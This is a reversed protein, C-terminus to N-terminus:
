SSCLVHVYSNLVVVTFMILLKLVLNHFIISLFRESQLYTSIRVWGAPQMPAGLLLVANTLYGMCSWDHQAVTRTTCCSQDHITSISKITYPCVQTACFLKACCSQDHIPGKLPVFALRQSTALMAIITVTIFFALSIGNFIWFRFKVIEM